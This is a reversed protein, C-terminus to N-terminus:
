DGSADARGGDFQVDAAPLHLTGEDTTLVLAGTEDIAEFVGRHTANPLRATITEGLHAALSQWVARVAGFGGKAMVDEWDSYAPALLDLFEGPTLRLGTAQSLAIPALSGPELAAAEPVEVLNVGIGICLTLGGGPAASSELLIGALKRGDLLVDNPWKLALRGPQGIAGALADHLALAAVFSRQAAEAPPADTHTLLTAAFNGEPTRWPRGRRGKGGTQRGALIWVPVDEGQAAFRMAEANTSGAEELYIRGVGEPWGTM